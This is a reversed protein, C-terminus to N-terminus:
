RWRRGPVRLPGARHRQFLALSWEGRRPEVWHLWEALHQARFRLAGDLVARGHGLRDARLSHTGRHNRFGVRIVRVVRGVLVRGILEGIQKWVAGVWVVEHVEVIWRIVSRWREFRRGSLM